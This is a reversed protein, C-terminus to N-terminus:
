YKNNEFLCLIQLPRSNTHGFDGNGVGLVILLWVFIKLIFSM